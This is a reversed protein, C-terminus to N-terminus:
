SKSRVEKGKGKGKGQSPAERVKRTIGGVPGPRYIDHFMWDFYQLRDLEFEVDKPAHGYTENNSVIKEFWERRAAGINRANEARQWSKSNKDEYEEMKAWLKKEKERDKLEEADMKRKKKLKKEEEKRHMKEYDKNIRQETTLDKSKGGKFLSM